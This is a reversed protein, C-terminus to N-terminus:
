VKSYHNWPKEFGIRLDEETKATRMIKLNKVVLVDAVHVLSNDSSLIEDKVENM